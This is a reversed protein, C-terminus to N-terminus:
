KWSPDKVTLQMSQSGEIAKNYSEQRNKIKKPSIVKPVKHDADPSTIWEPTEVAQLYSDQRKKFEQKNNNSPDSELGSIAAQYSEQRRKLTQETAAEDAEMNCYFGM